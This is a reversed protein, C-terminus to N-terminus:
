CRTRCVSEQMFKIFDEATKDNFTTNAARYLFDLTEAAQRGCTEAFEKEEEDTIGM